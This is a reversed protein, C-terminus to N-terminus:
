KMIEKVIFDTQIEFYITDYKNLVNFIIYFHFTYEFINANVFVGKYIPFAKM